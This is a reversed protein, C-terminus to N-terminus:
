LSYYENMMWTKVWEYEPLVHILDWNCSVQWGNPPKYLRLYDFRTQDNLAGHEPLFGSFLWGRQRFSSIVEKAEPWNAPVDVFDSGKIGMAEYGQRHVLDPMTSKLQPHNPCVECGQMLDTVFLEYDSPLFRPYQVFEGQTRRAVTITTAPQGNLHEEPCLHPHMMVTMGLIQCGVSRHYIKQSQMDWWTIPEVHEVYVQNGCASTAHECAQALLTGIGQGMYDKRVVLGGLMVCQPYFNNGPKGLSVSRAFGIVEGQDNQAVFYYAGPPVTTGISYPYTQGYKEKFLLDTLRGDQGMFPRITVQKTRANM